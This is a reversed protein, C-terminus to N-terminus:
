VVIEVHDLFTALALIQSRIEDKNAAMAALEVAAGTRTIEPFGYSEGTGKFQHGVEHAIKCDKADLGALIEDMDRRVNALYHPVLAEIGEPPAIRIKGRTNRSIAELLTAKKIPKTLHETCGAELSKRVEGEAAHATLTCAKESGM